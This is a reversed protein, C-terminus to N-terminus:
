VFMMDVLLFVFIAQLAFSSLATYVGGDNSLGFVASFMHSGLIVSCFIGSALLAVSISIPFGIALIIASVFMIVTLPTQTLSSLSALRLVNGDGKFVYIGMLYSIGVFSGITLACFLISQIFLLGINTSFMSINSDALLIMLLSASKKLRIQLVCLLIFTAIPQLAFFTICDMINIKYKRVTKIPSNVFRKFLEFSKMVHEGILQIYERRDIGVNDDKDDDGYDHGYDHGHNHRREKHRSKSHKPEEDDTAYLEDKSLKVTEASEMNVANQKGTYNQDTQTYSAAQMQDSQRQAM